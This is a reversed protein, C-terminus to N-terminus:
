RRQKLKRGKVNSFDLFKFSADFGMDMILALQFRRDQDQGPYEGLEVGYYAFDLQFIFFDMSTGVSYYGQSFGGRLDLFPLDLELGLHIKKGINEGLTNIHKYDLAATMGLAATDFSVAAGLIQEDPIREPKSSTADAIFNTTGVNKWVGSLVPNLPGSGTWIFGLDAGYGVGKKTLGSQINSTNGDLFKSVGVETHASSRNIRKITIGFKSVPNIEFAGGVALGYDLAYNLDFYPLIPDKLELGTKGDGFVAIGFNPTSFISKGGLGFWIQGGFLESFQDIGTGTSNNFSQVTDLANQGNIGLNMNMLMLNIGKVRGLAAPNYFLAEGDQVVATYANGMGLARISTNYEIFEAARTAGGLLLLSWFFLLSYITKM